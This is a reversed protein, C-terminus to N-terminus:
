HQQIVDSLYSLENLLEQMSQSHPLSPAIMPTISSQIGDIKDHDHIVLPAVQKAPTTEKLTVTSEVEDAPLSYHQFKSWSFNSERASDPDIHSSPGTSTTVSSITSFSLESPLADPTRTSYGDAHANVGDNEVSIDIPKIQGFEQTSESIPSMPEPDIVSAAYESTASFKRTDSTWDSFRSLDRGFSERDPETDITTVSFHSQLNALDEAFRDVPSNDIISPPYV